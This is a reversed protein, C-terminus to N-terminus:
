YNSVTLVKFLKGMQNVSLLRTLANEINDVESPANSIINKAQLEIGMSILFDRQFCVTSDLKYNKAKLYLKEFNVHSTIDSVGQYDLVNSFEHKHIAQLSDGVTTKTYGYDIFIASGRQNKLKFVLQDFLSDRLASIELIDGEAPSSERKPSRQFLLDEPCAGTNQESCVFHFNEGDTDILRERWASGQWIYQRIPISDFFENGIIILPGNEPLNSLNQHWTVDRCLNTKNLLLNQQIKKLCPSIEIMHIHLASLFEPLVRGIHLLDSMLTGHGPGLEVLNIQSPKGMKVWQDMAWIGIMEGFLQSIEPSTIFDGSSGIPNHTTYYGYDNHYQCLTWYREISMPGFKKIETKIM